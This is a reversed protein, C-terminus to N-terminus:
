GRPVEVDEFHQWHDTGADRVEVRIATVGDAVVFGNEVDSLMAAVHAYMKAESPYLNSWRRQPRGHVVLCCKFARAKAVVPRREASTERAGSTSLSMSGATAARATRKTASTSMSTRCPWVSVRLRRRSVPRMRAMTQTRPPLPAQLTTACPKMPRSSATGSAVSGSPSTPRLWRDVWWSEYPLWEDSGAERYEVYAGAFKHRYRDRYEQVLAYAKAESPIQVWSLKTGDSAVRAVRFTTRKAM